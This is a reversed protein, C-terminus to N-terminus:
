TAEQRFLELLLLVAAVSLLIILGWKKLMSGIGGLATGGLLNLINADSTAAAPNEIAKVVNPDSPIIQDVAHGVAGLANGVPDTIANWWNGGSSSSSSPSPASGGTLFPLPNVFQGGQLVSFHLHPGSSNGTSGSLGIQQGASVTQGVAVGLSSLHGYLTDIGNGMDIEIRNGFGTTDWGSAIVTGSGAALVPTGLPLGYDIGDHFHAYGDYAPEAAYSTPGFGQEVPYSGTFPMLLSAVAQSLAM